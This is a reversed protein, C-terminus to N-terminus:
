HLRSSERSLKYPLPLHAFAFWSVSPDHCNACKGISRREHLHHIHAHASGALKSKVTGVPVYEVASFYSGSGITQVIHGPTPLVRLKVSVKYLLTVSAAVSNYVRVADTVREKLGLVICPRTYYMGNHSSFVPAENM